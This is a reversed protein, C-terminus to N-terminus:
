TKRKSQNTQKRDNKRLWVWVWLSSKFCNDLANYHSSYKIFNAFSILLQGVIIYRSNM